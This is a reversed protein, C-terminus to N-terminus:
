PPPQSRDIYGKAVTLCSHISILFIPFGTNVFSCCIGIDFAEEGRM